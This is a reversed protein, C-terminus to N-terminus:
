HVIGHNREACSQCINRSHMWGCPNREGCEKCVQFYRKNNLIKHIEADIETSLIDTNIKVTFEWTSVPSHSGSWGIKCVFVNISGAEPEIKIFRQALEHDDM